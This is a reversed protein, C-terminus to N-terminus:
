KELFGKGASTAKGDRGGTRVEGEGRKRAGEGESIRLLEMTRCIEMCCRNDLKYCLNVTEPMEKSNRIQVMDFIRSAMEMCTNLPFSLKAPGLSVRPEGNEWGEQVFVGKMKRTKRDWWGDKVMKLHNGLVM